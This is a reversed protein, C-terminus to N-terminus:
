QVLPQSPQQEESKTKIEEKIEKVLSINKKILEEDAPNAKAPTWRLAMVRLSEGLPQHVACWDIIADAIPDFQEESFQNITQALQPLDQLTQTTLAPSDQLLELFGSIIQMPTM